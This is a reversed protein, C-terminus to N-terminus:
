LNEDFWKIIYKFLAPHIDPYTCNDPLTDTLTLEAMEMDPPLVGLRKVEAFYLMAYRRISYAAVPKLEFELAGTEEYLERRATDAIAEVPERHGGPLEWTTREKHRCFIWKGDYRAAIVAAFFLRDDVEDPNYFTIPM